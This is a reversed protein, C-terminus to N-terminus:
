LLRFNVKLKSFCRRHEDHLAHYIKFRNEHLFM